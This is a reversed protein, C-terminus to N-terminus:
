HRKEDWCTEHEPPEENWYTEDEQIEEDTMEPIVREKRVRLTKYEVVTWEDVIPTAEVIEEHEVRPKPRYIMVKPAEEELIPSDIKQVDSAKWENALSVFSKGEWKMASGANGLSPFDKLDAKVARAHQAEVRDAAAKDRVDKEIQWQPKTNNRRFAKM